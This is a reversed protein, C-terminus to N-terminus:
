PSGFLRRWFGRGELEAVRERLAEAEEALRAAEAELEARRAELEQVTSDSREAIARAAVLEGEQERITALMQVIATTQDAEPKGRPKLNGFVRELEAIPVMRRGAVNVSQLAGRPPNEPNYRECRRRIATRTLGTLEAAEALTVLRPSGNEKV